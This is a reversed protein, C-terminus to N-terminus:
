VKARGRGRVPNGASGGEATKKIKGGDGIFTKKAKSRKASKVPAIALHQYRNNADGYHSETYRDHSRAQGVGTQPEIAAAQQRSLPTSNDKFKGAQSKKGTCM